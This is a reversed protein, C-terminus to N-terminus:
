LPFYATCVIAYIVVKDILLSSGSNLNPYYFESCYPRTVLILKSCYNLWILLGSIYLHLPIEKIRIFPKLFLFWFAM